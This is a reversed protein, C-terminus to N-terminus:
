RRGGMGPLGGESVSTAAVNGEADREGQVIVTSGPKLDTVKGEKSIQIKTDGNTTVVTTGGDAEVYIKDGDVLKVTGFTTGALAGGFGGQGGQRQGGGQRLGGAQGGQGALLGAIMAQRDGSGGWLKQAQIGLLVGAMLVVGAALTVTLKSTRARVPRAMLERDLDDGYPSTELLEGPATRRRGM